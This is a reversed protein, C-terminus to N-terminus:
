LLKKFSQIVGSRSQLSSVFVCCLELWSTHTLYRKIVQGCVSLESQAGLCTNLVGGECSGYM